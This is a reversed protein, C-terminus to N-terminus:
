RGCRSAQRAMSSLSRAGALGGLGKGKRDSKPGWIEVTVSTGRQGGAPYIGELLLEEYEPVPVEAAFAPLSLLWAFLVILRTSRVM